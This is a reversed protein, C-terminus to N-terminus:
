WWFCSWRIKWNAIKACWTEAKRVRLVGLHIQDFWLGCFCFPFHSYVFCDRPKHLYWERQHFLLIVFLFWDRLGLLFYVFFLLIVFLLWDILGLLFYLDSFPRVRVESYILPPILQWPPTLMGQQSQIEDGIIVKLDFLLWKM